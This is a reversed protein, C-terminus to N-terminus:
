FGSSADASAANNGDSAQSTGPNTALPKGGALNSATNDDNGAKTDNKNSNGQNAKTAAGDKVLDLCWAPVCTNGKWVSNVYALLTDSSSRVHVQSGLKVTAHNYVTLAKTRYVNNSIDLFLVSVDSLRMTTGAAVAVPAVVATRRAYVQQNSMSLLSSKFPVLYGGYSSLVSPTGVNSNGQKGETSNRYAALNVTAVCKNVSLTYNSYGIAVWDTSAVLNTNTYCTDDSPRVRCFMSLDVSSSHMGPNIVGKENLEVQLGFNLSCINAALLYTSVLEMRTVGDTSIDDMMFLPGRKEVLPATQAGNKSLVGGSVDTFGVIVGRAQHGFALPMIFAHRTDSYPLLAGCADLSTSVGTTGFLSKFISTGMDYIDSAHPVVSEAVTRSLEIDLDANGTNFLGVQCDSVNSSMQLGAVIYDSCCRAVIAYSYLSKIADSALLGTWPLRKAVVTSSSFSARMQQLGSNGRLVILGEIGGAYLCNSELGGYVDDTPVDPYLGPTFAFSSPDRGRLDRILNALALSSFSSEYDSFSEFGSAYDLHYRWAGPVNNAVTMAALRRPGPGGAAPINLGAAAYLVTSYTGTAAQRAVEYLARLRDMAEASIPGFRERAPLALSTWEPGEFKVFQSAYTFGEMLGVKDGTMTLLWRMAENWDNITINAPAAATNPRAQLAGYVYLAYDEGFSNALGRVGTEGGVRAINVNPQKICWLIWLANLSLRTTTLKSEIFCGAKAGAVIDHLDNVFNDYLGAAPVNAGPWVATAHNATPAVNWGAGAQMAEALAFMRAFLPANSTSTDTIGAVINAITSAGSLDIGSLHSRVRKSLKEVETNDVLSLSVTNEERVVLKSMENMRNIYYCMDVSASGRGNVQNTAVAVKMHGANAFNPYVTEAQGLQAHATIRTVPNIMHSATISKYLADTWAVGEGVKQARDSKTGLWAVRDQEFFSSRAVTVSINGNLIHM